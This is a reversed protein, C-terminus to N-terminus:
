AKEGPNSKLRQILQDLESGSLDQLDVGEELLEDGHNGLIQREMNQALGELQEPSLTELELIGAGTVSAQGGVFGLMAQSWAFSPSKEGEWRSLGIFLLLVAAALALAPMWPLAKRAPTEDAITERIRKRQAAFFLEGPDSSEELNRLSSALRRYAEAESRCPLCAALHAQFETGPSAELAEAALSEQIKDCPTM